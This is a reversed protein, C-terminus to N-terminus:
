SLKVRAVVLEEPLAGLAGPAPAQRRTPEAAEAFSDEPRGREPAADRGRRRRRARRLSPNVWPAPAALPQPASFASAARMAAAIRPDETHPPAGANVPTAAAGSACSGRSTRWPGTSTRRRAPSCSPGSCFPSDEAYTGTRDGTKSPRRLRERRRRWAPCQPRRRGGL